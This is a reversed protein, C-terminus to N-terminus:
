QAPSILPIAHVGDRTPSVSYPAAVFFPIGGGRVGHMFFVGLGKPPPWMKGGTAAGEFTERLGDVLPAAEDRTLVLQASRGKSLSLIGLVTLPTDSSTAPESTPCVCVSVVAMLSSDGPFPILIEPRSVKRGAQPLYATGAPFAIQFAVVCRSDADEPPAWKTWVRDQGLGVLEPRNAIASETYAVRWVGSAHLSVKFEKLADRCAVYVDDGQAWVRWSNTTMEQPSCAAFRLPLDMLPLVADTPTVLVFDPDLM